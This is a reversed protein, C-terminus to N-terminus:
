KKLSYDNLIERGKAKGLGNVLSSLWQVLQQLWTQEQVTTPNAPLTPAPPPPVVNVTGQFAYIVPYNVLDKDAPQYHDYIWVNTGNFIQYNMVAHNPDTGSPPPTPNTQNWGADTVVGLILPASPLAAIMNKINETGDCIWSYTISSKGGIASLFQQGKNLVAQSIPALYQEPTLQLDVPLDSWPVCGYKQIVQWGEQVSNGNFGNGTLIQLYRPSSHFHAKGDLSNSDMFGLETFLNLTGAPIQNNAILYNIQADFAEQTSFLVCGDSDQGEILQGEYFDIYPKWNGDTRPLGKIGRYDTPTPQFIM